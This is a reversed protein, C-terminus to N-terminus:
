VQADLNALQEGREGAFAASQIGDRYGILMGFYQARLKENSWEFTLQITREEKLACTLGALQEEDADRLEEFYGQVSIAVALSSCEFEIIEAIETKERVDTSLTPVVSREEKFRQILGRQRGSVAQQFRETARPDDVVACNWGFNAGAIWQADSRADREDASVTPPSSVSDLWRVYDGATPAVLWRLENVDALLREAIDRIQAREKRAREDSATPAASLTIDAAIMALRDVDDNSLGAEGDETQFDYEAPDDEAIALRIRDRLNAYSAQEAETTATPVAAVYECKHPSEHDHPLICVPETRKHCQCPCEAYVGEIANDVVAICDAHNGMECPWAEGDAMASPEAQFAKQLFKPLASNNPQQDTLYYGTPTGGEIWEGRDHDDHECRLDGDDDIAPITYSDFPGGFTPVEGMEPHDMNMFFPRRTTPCEPWPTELAEQEVTQPKHSLGATATPPAAAISELHSLISVAADRRGKFFAVQIAHGTEDDLTQQFLDRHERVRELMATAVPAPQRSLAAESKLREIFQLVSSEIFPSLMEGSRIVSLLFTLNTAAALRIDKNEDPSLLGPNSNTM